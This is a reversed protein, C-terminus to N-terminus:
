VETSLDDGGRAGAAVLLDVIKTYGNCAANELASRSYKNQANVDAGRDLLLQVIDYHGYLAASHLASDYNKNQANVDAGHDLLLQAIDYHGYLAAYQLVSHHNGTQANVDAGNSLLIDVVATHGAGSAAQLATDEFRSKWNVKAGHDLLLQVVSSQGRLSAERLAIESNRNNRNRDVGSDLQRQVSRLDGKGAALLLTDCSFQSLPGTDAARVLRDDQSLSQLPEDPTREPTTPNLKPGQSAVVARQEHEAYQIKRHRVVPLRAAAWSTIEDEPGLLRVSTDHLSETTEAADEMKGNKSFMMALGKLLLLSRRDEPWSSEELCTRYEIARLFVCEGEVTYTSDLYLHAFRAMLYGYQNCLEGDPAELKQPEICRRTMKYFHRILPLFRMQSAHDVVDEPLCKSLAYGAAIIWRDRLDSALTQFRWRSISDHLSISIVSGESGREVKLLCLRELQGSALQFALRDNGFCNLWTTEHTHYVEPWDSHSSVASNEPQHVQGMLDVAVPRPGFCSAFALINEADGDQDLRTLLINFVSIISINKEYDWASRAPKHTMIRQYQTEYYRLFDRVSMGEKIM